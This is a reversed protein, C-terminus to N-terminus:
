WIVRAALQMYRADDATTITGVTATSVNAAPVGFNTNNFLNYVEARFELRTRMAIPIRKSFALDTRRFAPGRLTNRGARGQFGAAPVTYAAPDFYRLATTGLYAILQPEDLQGKDGDRGPAFDARAPVFSGLSQLASVSVSYPIGSQLRVAGALQWDGLVYKLVGADSLWRKGSGWPLEYGFSISSRHTRDYRSLAWDAEPDWAFATDNAEIEGSNNDMNKSLQYSGTFFLGQAFRKDLRLDCDCETSLRRIKLRSGGCM